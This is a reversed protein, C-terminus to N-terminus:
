SRAGPAPPRVNIQPVTPFVDREGPRTGTALTWNSAPVDSANNQSTM